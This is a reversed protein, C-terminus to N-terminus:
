KTIQGTEEGIVLFYLTSQGNNKSTYNNANGDLGGPRKYQYPKGM